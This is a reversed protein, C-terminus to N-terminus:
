DRTLQGAAEPNMGRLGSGPPRAGALFRASVGHIDPVLSTRSLAAPSATQALSRDLRYEVEARRM